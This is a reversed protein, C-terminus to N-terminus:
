CDRFEIHLLKFVSDFQYNSHIINYLFGSLVSQIGDLFSSIALIPMTSAVYRVVEKDNSYISGWINRLLIMVLAVSVGEVMAMVFGVRVALSAAKPQGGGLENSVRTSCTCILTVIFLMSSLLMWCMLINGFEIEMVYRVAASLGFPIMWLMAFSNLSLSFFFFIVNKTIVCLLCMSSM